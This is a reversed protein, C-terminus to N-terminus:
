RELWELFRSSKNVPNRPTFATAVRLDANYASLPRVPCFFVAAVVLMAAHALSRRRWFRALVAAARAVLLPRLTQALTWHLQGHSLSGVAIYTGSWTLSGISEYTLFRAASVGAKGALLSAVNSDADFKALLLAAASHGRILRLARGQWKGNTRCFRHGKSWGRRGVRYWFGNALLCASFAAILSSALGLRRASALSGVAILLPARPIPVGAQQALIWTFLIAAGHTLAFQAANTMEKDEFVDDNLFGARDSECYALRECVMHILQCSRNSSGFKRFAGISKTAQL